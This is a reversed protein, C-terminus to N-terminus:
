AQLGQLQPTVTASYYSTNLLNTFQSSDASPLAASYFVPYSTGNWGPDGNYGGSVASNFGAIQTQLTSYLDQYEPPVSSQGLAFAPAVCSFVAFSFLRFASKM